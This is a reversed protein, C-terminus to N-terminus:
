DEYDYNDDIDEEESVYEKLARKLTADTTGFEKLERDGLMDVMVSMLNDAAEQRDKAPIYQKMITYLESLVEVDITM